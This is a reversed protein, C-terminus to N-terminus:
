SERLSHSQPDKMWLSIIYSLPSVENLKPTTEVMKARNAFRLTSLTQHFNIVAPSITCIIATLSNGGLAMSLIRTLKSDRYPIYGCKGEALRNIVNALVFLSKNIFGAEGASEGKVDFENLRESGALDVLNLCSQKALGSKEGKRLSEIYLKFITHSRSSHEHVNTERYCRHDEGYNLLIIAQDFNQVVQRKLGSVIVGEALDEKIRLNTSAPVLLDNIIENYIELYSVSVRYENETDSQIGKFIDRLACPLMGPKDPSGLMTYTKGSTTQGYVLITGNYGQMAAKTIRRGVKAYIEQTNSKQGFVNDFCFSYSQFTDAFRRKLDRDRLLLPNFRGPSFDLPNQM